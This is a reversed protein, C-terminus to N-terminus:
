GMEALWGGAATALGPAAGSSPRDLALDPPELRVLTRIALRHDADAVLAIGPRWDDM